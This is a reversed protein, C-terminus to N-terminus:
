GTPVQKLPFLSVGVIKMPTKKLGNQLELHLGHVIVHVILDGNEVGRRRKETKKQHKLFLNGIVSLSKVDLAVGNVHSNM